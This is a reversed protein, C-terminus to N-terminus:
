LVTLPFYSLTVVTLQGFIDGHSCLSHNFPPNLTLHTSESAHPFIHTLAILFMAFLYFLFSPERTLLCVPFEQPYIYPM